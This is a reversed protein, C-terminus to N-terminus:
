VCFFQCAGVVIDCGDIARTDSDFVRKRAVDVSQGKAVLETLLAGDRQPLFVEATPHLRRALDENFAREMPNFLPAALYIKIRALRM